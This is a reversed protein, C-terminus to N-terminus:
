PSLSVAGCDNSGALSFSMGVASCIPTPQCDGCANEPSGSVYSCDGLAVIATARCEYHCRDCGSADPEFEYKPPNPQSSCPSISITITASQTHQGQTVAAGGVWRLAQSAIGSALVYTGSLDVEKTARPDTISVEIEAPVEEEGKCCISCSYGGSDKFQQDYEGGVSVTATAGGISTFEIPEDVGDLWTDCDEVLQETTFTTNCSSSTAADSSVTGNRNVNSESVLRMEPPTNPGYYQVELYGLLGQRNGVGCMRHIYKCPENQNLSGISHNNRKVVVEMGNYFAGCCKTNLWKWALYGDGPEDITIATIKGFTSEDDPDQGITVSLEADSGDSPFAQSITVTVDAVYPPENPDERYYLGPETVVVYRADPSDKYYLGGTNIFVVELQDTQSGIYIGAAELDVSLIAGNEDVSSVSGYAAEITTGDKPDDFNVEVYEGQSYGSGGASVSLSQLQYTKLHEGGWQSEDLLTWLPQLVAGSGSSLEYTVPDAIYIDANAPQEHVVGGTVVAAAVEVDDEGLNIVLLSGEEYGAGGDTVEVLSVTFEIPDLPYPSVLSTSVTATAPASNVEVAVTTSASGAVTIEPASRVGSIDKYYKGKNTVVVSHLADTRSGVYKGAPTFTTNAIDDSVFVSEIVGGSGVTGADIYADELVIGDEDTTFSLYIRDNNAYGSGGSTVNVSSLKYTKRHPLPWLSSDLLTWVPELVAGAGNTTDIFIDVNEPEDHVVRAYATAATVTVDSAATNFTISGEESYGSGGDSVSVAKVRWTEEMGGLTLSPAKRDLYLRAKAATVETDGESETIILEDGDAYGTGGSAEVSALSWQDFVNCAIDKSTSLTPTFTAGSGSGGSITLLPAVRGLKAYGSGGDKLSVASIPGKDTEPDGGPATVQAEAGSGYCSSFELTILDPGQSQDQLGNLTVTLTEPLSGVTCLTCPNCCASCSTGLMMGAPFMGAAFLWLGVLVGALPDAEAFLEIV